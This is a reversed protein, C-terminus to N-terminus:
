KLEYAEKCFHALEFKYNFKCRYQLAMCDTVLLKAEKCYISKFEFIGCYIYKQDSFSQQFIILSVSNSPRPQFAPDFIDQSARGYALKPPFEMTLVVITIRSGVIKAWHNEAAHKAGLSFFTQELLNRYATM